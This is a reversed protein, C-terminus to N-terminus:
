LLLQITTTPDFSHTPTPNPNLSKPLPRDAHAIGYQLVLRVAIPSFSSCALCRLLAISALQLLPSLFRRPRTSPVPRASRLVACSLSKSLKLSPQVLSQSACFWQQRLTNLTSLSQVPRIPRTHLPLVCGPRSLSLARRPSSLKARLRRRRRRRPRPRPSGQAVRLSTVRRSSQRQPLAASGDLDNNNQRLTPITKYRGKNYTNDSRRDLASLLVSFHRTPRKSRRKRQFLM